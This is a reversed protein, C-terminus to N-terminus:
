SVLILDHIKLTLKNLLGRYGVGSKVAGHYILFELESYQKELDFSFHDARSLLILKNISSLDQMERFDTVVPRGESRDDSVWNLQVLAIAIVNEKLVMEKLLRLSEAVQDGRSLKNQESRMLNLYDVFVFKLDRGSKKLGIIQEAIAEVSIESDHNIFINDKFITQRVQNLYNHEMESLTEKRINAFPIGSILSMRKIMLDEESIELSFYACAESQEVGLENLLNLAVSSKGVCPRSAIVGLHGPRLDEIIQSISNPKAEIRAQKNRDFGFTNQSKFIKLFPLAGFMKLFSRIGM